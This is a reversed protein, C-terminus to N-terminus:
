RTRVAAQWGELTCCGADIPSQSTRLHSQFLDNIFRADAPFNVSMDATGELGLIKKVGSLVGTHVRMGFLPRTPSKCSTFDFDHKVHCESGVAIVPVLHHGKALPDQDAVITPTSLIQSTSLYQVYMPAPVRHYGRKSRWSVSIVM